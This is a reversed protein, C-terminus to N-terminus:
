VAADAALVPRPVTSACTVDGAPLRGEVLYADVIDDVAANGRLGYIEHQGCDAVTVLRHGLRAAMAAGGEYHNIPDGDAHVILGPYRHTLVTPSEAPTFTAFAGVWPQARMVGYGYPYRERYHRMDAYYDQLDTPWPKELTVADLVGCRTQGETEAPPWVEEEGLWRYAVAADGDRLEGVMRGLEEWRSRDASRSAMAGDFLSRLVINRPDAALAAAAHEVTAMVDADTRGLGLHSDREAAWQAWQEVNTRNARGQAMLQTRWNWDPHVCSDLVSRDLRDPFMQGYVAGVYTGYTYGLFSIAPESLAARIRDIDRAVNRTSFHARLAGGARQNGQERIRFDEAITAFVEDPPRSDFPAAVATIEGLLPTSEGTGRPDFGILDYHEAARTHALALPFRTGFGFYGGPGGNVAILVGRRRAPDPCRRRSLAITLQDGDPATYDLPVQLEARDLGDQTASWTLTSNQETTM